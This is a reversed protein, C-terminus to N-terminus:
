ALGPAVKPCRSRSACKMCMGPSDSGRPEVRGTELDLRRQRLSLVAEDSLLRSRHYRVGGEPHRIRVYGYESSRCRRLRGPAAHRLMYAQISLEVRDTDFVVNRTRTKSEVPILRGDQTEYVQDVRCVIANPGAVFLKSESLVLTALALEEPMAQREGAEYEEQPTAGPQAMLFLGVVVLLLLVGLVLMVMANM